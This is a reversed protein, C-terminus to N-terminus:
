KKKLDLAKMKWKLAEEQENANQFAESLSLYAESLLEPDQQNKADSFKKVFEDVKEKM